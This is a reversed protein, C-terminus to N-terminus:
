RVTIIVRDGPSLVRVTRIGMNRATSAMCKNLIVLAQNTCYPTVCICGQQWKEDAEIIECLCGAPADDIPIVDCSRLLEVKNNM